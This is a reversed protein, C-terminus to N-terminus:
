ISQAVVGHYGQAKRAVNSRTNGAFAYFRTRKGDVWQDPVSVIFLQSHMQYEWCVQLRIFGELRKSLIEVYGLEYHLRYLHRPLMQVSAHLDLPTHGSPTFTELEYM